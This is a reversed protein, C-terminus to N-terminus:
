FVLGLALVLEFVPRPALVLEFVLGLAVAVLPAIAMSAVFAGEKGERTGLSRYLEDLSESSSILIGAVEICGESETDCVRRVFAGRNCVIKPGQLQTKSWKVV